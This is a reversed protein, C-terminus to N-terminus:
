RQPHGHLEVRVVSYQTSETQTTGFRANVAYLAAGFRAITTPVDFDPDTLTREVSGSSLDGALDVVAIENNQNRVVYLTRGLLLIGDANTLTAGGLDIKEAEGTAADITFLEGTTSHAVILTKGNPTAEIGNLNFGAIFPIEDDLPVEEAAGLTGDPAIPVRYLVPRMSDTFWAAQRTVVVDNVFTPTSTTLQYTRLLEGSDADYVRAAGMGGGAVWLRNRHDVKMGVAVQGEQPPVIVEGEGTRLNGRYIDGGTLSGTFFTTGRGVAIGEPAFGDPLQITDPFVPRPPGSSAAPAASVAPALLILAAFTALLGTLATRANAKRVTSIRTM